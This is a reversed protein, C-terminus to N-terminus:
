WPGVATWLFQRNQGTVKNAGVWFRAQASGGYIEELLIDIQADAEADKVQWAPFKSKIALNASSGLMQCFDPM